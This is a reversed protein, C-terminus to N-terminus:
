LLVADGYKIHTISAGVQEVYGGGEHGLVKCYSGAEKPLSAFILDTHCIGTAVMRVLVEDDKLERVLVDELTFKVKGDAPEHAFFAQATAPVNTM